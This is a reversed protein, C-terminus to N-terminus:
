FGIRDFNSRVGKGRGRKGKQFIARTGSRRGSSFRVHGAIRTRKMRAGAIRIFDPIARSNKDEVTRDNTKDWTAARCAAITIFKLEYTNLPASRSIALSIKDGPHLGAIRAVFIAPTDDQVSKGDIKQIRDGARLDALSAPSGPVVFEIVIGSAHGRVAPRRIEVGLYGTGIGPKAAHGPPWREAPWARFPRLKSLDVASAVNWGVRRVFGRVGVDISATRQNEGSPRFLYVYHAGRQDFDGFDPVGLLELLEVESVAREKTGTAAVASVLDGFRQGRHTIGEEALYQSQIGLLVWRMASLRNEGDGPARAGAGTERGARRLNPGVADATSPPQRAHRCSVLISALMCASIAALNRM